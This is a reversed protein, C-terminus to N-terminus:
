ILPHRKFDRSTEYSDYEVRSIMTCEEALTSVEDSEKYIVPFKAVEGSQFNLTPNLQGFIYEFVKSNLLACIYNKREGLEFICCGGNDFIYGEGFQRISFKGSTVTSWTLGPRTFFQYNAIVATPIKRMEAADDYWDTLYDNFGYWKRYGGGKNYPFWRKIKTEDRDIFTSGLNMKNKDVEYWLRLFRDNDSTSNGKRPAAISGLSPYDMYVERVRDSVWYAAPANPLKEFGDASVEFVYGCGPSSIAENFKERQVDLGGRFDTLRFYVGKVDTRRNKMTFACVPVTADDFASYEFHILTELTKESFIMRRLKEYSQIFMWVCPTLFGLYGDDETLETCRVMFASFLDSYYDNYEHKIFGLLERNMSSCSMYPPNTVVASYKRTLLRFVEVAKTGQVEPPICPRILSGFLEAGTFQEGFRTEDSINEMDYIQPVIGDPLLDGYYQVAKLYVALRAIRVAKSDIDLGFLNYKIINMVAESDTFGCAKYLEAFMDFAYVLINGSGVCPDLLTISEPGAKTCTISRPVYYKMTSTDYGCRSALIRGLTNETMYKVIWDPTFIQTAAAMNETDVKANNKLGQLVSDKKESNYYQYLQGILQINGAWYEAPIESLAAEAAEAAATVASDNNEGFVYPILKRISSTDNGSMIGNVAMYRSAAGLLFAEFSLEDQGAGDFRESLM